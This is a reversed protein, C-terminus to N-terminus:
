DYRKRKSSSPIGLQERYKAATRRALILGHEQKLREVLEQDSFPSTKNENEIVSAVMQKVKQTSFQVDSTESPLSVTFFIRMEYIGFPTQVYKGNVARSVTSEHIDLEDAVEKMTMPKICDLGHFFCGPQKRVISSMVRLITEKRQEVARSLWQYEQWKERFYQKVQPNSTHNMQVFYQKDVSLKLFSGEVDGVFLEGDCVTVVVDPVIYSVKEQRFALAPRPNLTRIYDSSSQIEKLSTNLKKSLVKWNKNVFDNFHSHLINEVLSGRAHIHAQIWLCEQLNRAGIGYPELGQLLALAKQLDPFTIHPVNLEEFSIRLYGNDDLNRILLTLAGIVERSQQKLNVQSLLYDELSVQDARIQEMWDSPDSDSKIRSQSRFDVGLSSVALQSDDMSLLPNELMKEELYAALEQASYQLIAISQTLEHKMAMTARHQQYQGMRMNM